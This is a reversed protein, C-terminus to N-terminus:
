TIFCVNLAIRTLSIKNNEWIQQWLNELCFLAKTQVSSPSVINFFFAVLMRWHCLHRKLLTGLRIIDKLNFSYQKTKDLHQKANSTKKPKRYRRFRKVDELVTIIVTIQTKDNICSLFLGVIELQQQPSCHIGPRIQLESSQM